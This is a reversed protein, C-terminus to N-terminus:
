DRNCQMEEDIKLIKTCISLPFIVRLSFSSNDQFKRAEYFYTLELTVPRLTTTPYAVHVQQREIYPDHIQIECIDHDLNQM